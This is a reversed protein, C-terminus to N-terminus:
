FPLDEEDTANLARELAEKKLQKIKEEKEIDRIIKIGEGKLWLTGFTNFHEEPKKCIQISINDKPLEIIYYGSENRKGTYEADRTLKVDYKEGNANIYNMFCYTKNEYKMIRVYIPLKIIENM